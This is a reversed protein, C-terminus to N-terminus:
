PTQNLHIQEEPSLDRLTAHQSRQLVRVYAAVAWRDAGFMKMAIVVFALAPFLLSLTFALLTKRNM